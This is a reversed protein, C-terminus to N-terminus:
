SEFWFINKAVPAHVRVRPLNWQFSKEIKSGTYRSNPLYPKQSKKLQKYM